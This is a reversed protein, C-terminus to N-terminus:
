SATNRHLQRRRRRNRSCCSQSWSHCCSRRPDGARLSWSCGATTQGMHLCAGREIKSSRVRYLNLRLEAIVPVRKQFSREYPLHQTHTAICETKDRTNRHMCQTGDRRNHLMCQGIECCRGASTNRSGADM